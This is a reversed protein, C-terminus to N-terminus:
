KVKLITTAPTDLGAGSLTTVVSARGAKRYTHRGSVELVYNSSTAAFEASSFVTANDIYVTAGPILRVTGATTTGDGWDVQATYTSADPPGGYVAAQFRAVTLAKAARGRPTTLPPTPLAAVAPPIVGAAAVDAVTTTSAKAGARSLTVAVGAHYRTAQFAPSFAHSGLVEITAPQNGGAPSPIVKVVGASRGGDGWDVQARYAAARRPVKSGAETFTAVPILGTAVGASATLHAATATGLGGAAKGAVTATGAASTAHGAPDILTVGVEYTGPQDYTHAGLIAGTDRIRFSNLLNLIPNVQVLATSSTGDGWSITATGPSEPRIAESGAPFAAITAVPILGTTALATAAIPATALDVAMLARGELRDLTPRLLAPRRALRMGTGIM